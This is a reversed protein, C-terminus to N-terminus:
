YFARTAQTDECRSSARPSRIDLSMSPVDRQWLVLCIHQNQFCISYHLPAPEVDSSIDDEEYAVGAFLASKAQGTRSSRHWLEFCSTYKSSRQLVLHAETSGRLRLNGAVQPFLTSPGTELADPCIVLPPTACRNFCWMVAINTSTHFTLRVLDALRRMCASNQILLGAPNQM